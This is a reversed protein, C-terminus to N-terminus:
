DGTVQPVVLEKFEKVCSVYHQPNGVLPKLGDWQESTFSVRGELGAEVLKKLVVGKVQGSGDIDFTWTQGARDGGRCLEMVVRAAEATADTGAAISTVPVLLLHLFVLKKIPSQRM